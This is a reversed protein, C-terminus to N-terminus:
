PTARARSKPHEGRAKLAEEILLECQMGIPRHEREALAIVRDMLEPRLRFTYAKKEIGSKPRAMHAEKHMWSAVVIMM